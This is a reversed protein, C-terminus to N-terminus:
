PRGDVPQGLGNFVRGLLGEGVRLEMPRELFEVGSTEAGLGTTSGFVQIAAFDQGLDIVRGLRRGGDRGYVAAVENFGVNRSRRTIVVPGEIKALHKFTVGRM